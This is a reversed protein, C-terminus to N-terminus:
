EKPNSLIKKILEAKSKGVVKILEEMSADRIHSVTKFATLLKTETKEGIGKLGEFVTSKLTNKSRKKRHFSIASRHTEDRIIQILRLSESKKDIFLPDSDEPFYLEELRKAIGIVPIKGYLNLDTLARCAASLQGKGGDIIILDPLPCNEELLRKYRRLVVEHMSDFDNPGEVTKINYVRYDRKSPKGNKFVVLAAVPSSGQINSNDFCEIHNPLHSLRLDKQLRSLVRNEKPEQEEEDKELNFHINRLSLDILKKKDGIVPVTIKYNEIELPINTLIDKSDSKLEEKIGAIAIKLIQVEPEDLKKKVELNRAQVITGNVIKLFNIYAKKETSKITFVDVDTIDPNVIVSYSQFKELLDLKTKLLHAKEFELNESHKKIKDKFYLKVQHINGKLIHHVQELNKLYEGESFLGECPGKCNGIHYELCVKYKKEEINKESLNFTCTRLYFVKHVLELITNMARVSTYPGYYTGTGRELKRTSILRPFRENTICLYPYTKDDKLLINYKPQFNKILNNELLLADFETNVITFEIRRIQSVLKLTKSDQSGTKNFYSTVRKRINKAKGVYILEKADNYFRYVGPNEPLEKVTEKIHNEIDSM